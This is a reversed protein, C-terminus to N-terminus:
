QAGAVISMRLVARIQAKEEESVTDGLNFDKLAREVRTEVEGDTLPASNRAMTSASTLRAPQPSPRSHASENDTFKKKLPSSFSSQSQSSQSSKTKKQEELTAERTQQQLKQLQQSKEYEAESAKLFASFSEDDMGDAETFRYGSGGGVSPAIQRWSDNSATLTPVGGQNSPQRGSPVNTLPADNEVQSMDPRGDKILANVQKPLMFSPVVSALMDGASALRNIFAPSKLGLAALLAKSFHNCDSSFCFM